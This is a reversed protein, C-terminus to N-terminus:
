LQIEEFPFLPTRRNKYVFRTMDAGTPGPTDVRVISRCIQQYAAVPANVGKAVIFDFSSPDLGFATLQRLSYPECRRSTLMVTNGSVTEVIAMTGMNFNVFGGHRPTSESFRGDALRVLKVQSTYAPVGFTLPFWDDAVTNQEVQAVAYADCICVFVRSVSHREFADLLHTSDGPAGGGVNDGMDLVLVPGAMEGLVPLLSELTRKEGNFTRYQKLVYEEVEDAALRCVGENEGAVLVGSGMEAVDAYPFGLLIRVSLLGYKHQVAEAYQRLGLCPDQLTSQQEISIALPLQRLYQLPAITGRVAALMMGAALRGTDAQDVHPNTSYPILADTAEVMVRSVNAHPDLTGMIPISPGLKERLLGLWHGDMDPYSAVVGAGHPVVMCADLPQAADLQTFLEDLLQLYAEDSILGAPTASAYFVPVLEVDENGEIVDIIGSIEHHAGRYEKLIDNGVLWYGNRFSDFTTGSTLFTNTEHYIGLLGIRKKM